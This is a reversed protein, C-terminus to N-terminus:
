PVSVKLTRKKMGLYLLMLIVWILGNTTIITTFNISFFSVTFLPLLTASVAAYIINVRYGSVMLLKRYLLHIFVGLLITSIIVGPWGFDAWFNGMYNTNAFGTTHPNNWWIQAVYNPLPFVGEPHLWAFLQSVQGDLFDHIRPFIKFHFYLVESPVIFVRYLVAITIIELINRHKLHLFYMIIMPISFILLVSILFFKFSVKGSRLFYMAMIALFIAATPSKELTFANYIIGPILFALFLMKYKREKYVMTLFLSTTIGIPIFLSRLWAFAYLEIGTANLLKLSEERLTTLKRYAGADVFLELIPISQVRILYIAAILGSVGLLILLWEYTKRDLESKVFRDQALNKMMQLDVPFFKNTLLLALPYLIYFSLVGMFFTPIAPDQEIATIYIGPIAIFVTFTAYLISPFSLYKLGSLGFISRYKFILVEYIILALILVMAYPAWIEQFFILFIGMFLPLACIMFRDIDFKYTM